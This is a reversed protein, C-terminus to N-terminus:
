RTIFADWREQVMQRNEAWYDASSILQVALNEPASPSIATLAFRPGATTVSVRFCAASM